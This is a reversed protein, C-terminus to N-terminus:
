TPSREKAQINEADSSQRLDLLSIERNFRTALRADHSVFLLTSNAKASEQALLDLFATQRDADLSSTPEDAIILEPQGILARAAAVRQQQGVSLQTVTRNHLAVDLDLDTLLRKAEHELTNGGVMAIALAKRRASFRCPLLVNDIVSLYPILNFQQFIFGIHDVRFQDRESSTLTTLDAGLVQVRGHQPLLVGGLLGLLTSKGCGSPGHLFVREGAAVTLNPVVLEFGDTGSQQPWAFRLSEISITLRNAAINEQLSPNM